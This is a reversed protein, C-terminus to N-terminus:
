LPRLDLMAIHTLVKKRRAKIAAKNTVKNWIRITKRIKFKHYLNLEVREPASIVLFFVGKRTYVDIGNTSYFTNEGKTWKEPYILISDRLERVLQSNKM